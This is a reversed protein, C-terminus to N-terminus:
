GLADSFDSDHKLALASWRKVFDPADDFSLRLEFNFHRSRRDSMGIHVRTRCSGVEWRHVPRILALAFAGNEGGDGFTRGVGEAQAVRGMPGDVYVSFTPGHAWDGDNARLSAVAATLPM